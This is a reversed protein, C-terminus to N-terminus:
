SFLMYEVVMDTSVSPWIMVDYTGDVASWPIMMWDGAYLYGLEEVIVGSDNGSSSGFGIRFFEGAVTSPNKIYLFNHGTSGTSGAETYAALDVQYTSSLIKRVSKMTDMGETASAAKFLTMSNAISVSSDGIDSSLSINATTTPM